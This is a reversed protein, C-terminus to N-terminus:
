EKSVPQTHHRRGAPKGNCTEVPKQTFRVLAGYDYVFSDWHNAESVERVIEMTEVSDVAHGDSLFEQIDHTELIVEDQSAFLELIERALQQAKTQNM